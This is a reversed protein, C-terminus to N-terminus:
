ITKPINMLGETLRDRLVTLRESEQVRNTHALELAKALGIIGPVNETGSRVNREQGGGIFMPQVKVGRRMFLAGIGKPGYVKSGNLTLLDVHLKEVDMELYGTAQCADTHFYPHVTGHEKRYKLLERGIEALPQITGIENNAMMISILVTNSKVAAMVETVDVKGARDVPVISLEIENKRQMHILPELVAHHEIASTIVHPMNGVYRPVGMVALNDSETGGSTFIIEDEHANLFTAISQRAMTVDDKAQKGLSHFSSPNGFVDSFYPQMAELVMPDLPTAAAHDLYIM